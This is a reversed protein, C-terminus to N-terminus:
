ADGPVTPGQQVEETPKQENGVETSKESADVPKEEMMGAEKENGSGSAEGESKGVNNNKEAGSGEEKDVAEEWNDVVTEKEQEAEKKRLELRRLAVFAGGARGSGLVGLTTKSGTAPTKPAAVIVRKAGRSAVANWGGTNAGSDVGERRLINLSDDAHCLIVNRAIGGSRSSITKLISSKLATLSSEITQPASTIISAATFNPVAKILIEETSLFSTQFTLALGSRSATALDKYLEKEVEETTLGFRPQTLLLANFAQVAPQPKESVVVVRKNAQVLRYCQALTKQPAAVFRPTKFICVHRHGEPDQSESDLGYDEALSHLFARQNPPMPKFRLRKEDSSSAFVRFEREQTQAWTINERFMKLTKDSYPIHDDKHSDPNVKLAAALQQNRQIRLCEDDCKLVTDKHPWPNFRTAQCRVEQKRRILPTASIPVPTSALYWPGAVFRLAISGLYPSMRASGLSTARCCPQNKLVKKGCICPREVLFPCKPCMPHGCARPRRCNFRCEPPRTGCPQPPHLITRGCSCSIEDFIAEPCAMCPGKLQRGCVQLCIHEVEYNENATRKQKRREAAKKEGPCCRAGCEHRGCNLQARCTRFCQPQEVTGQHCVSKASVKGCRCSIDVYQFCPSCAGTHCKNCLKDCQPVPDLSTKGCNCHTVVDPSLSCHATSEDQPHCPQNQCRFSGEFWEGEEAEYNFSEIVDDRQNCTVVKKEKGCYCIAPVPIKCAGCLGSHCPQSCTHEGCPLLDGCEEHCRRTIEHKGCFCAQAPGMLTCPPCPGAHCMLPCPHPCTARPKSCTNGCTHPPLGPIPKMDVDKGCWCHYVTPAEILNSNCGPCRWYMLQDPNPDEKRKDMQNRYWKKVCHIHLVTWCISCSWVKSTRVVENTCIVCEYQGNNIDEHIRTPLDEATSKETVRPPPPDAKPPRTRPAQLPAAAVPQGPVFEAAVASLRTLDIIQNILVYKEDLRMKRFWSLKRDEEEAYNDKVVSLFVRELTPAGISYDQLGLEERNKELLEILMGVGNGNRATNVSSADNEERDLSEAQQREKEKETWNSGVMFRIQGGVSRGEFVVGGDGRSFTEKVWTEVKEAETESSHPASRLVLQVCVADSFDKRLSGTTGLALLKGGGLIAVKTALADAEEMSHTTLLLSRGPSVDELIKWMKRKAAADMSSSPEDLVLVSPNGMLAIALSLKRKNGGSLASAQKKAHPTLGVRDMLTEINAAREAKPIGKVAAYFELHQKATMLDLADFQPCVGIASSIDDANAQSSINAGHLLIEGSDPRLEGRILNVITTKGAGNPGLLAVIESKHLSLSVDSVAPISNFAKHLHSIELLPTNSSPTTKVALASKEEVQTPATSPPTSIVSSATKGGRSVRSTIFAFSLDDDVWILIAVMVFIQIVLYVLPFTYGWWSSAPAQSPSGERCGLRYLNLGVAMARFVNGIPFVLDLVYSVIDTNRQVVLADSLFYPLTYALGLGFFSVSNFGLAWLFSSLQSRAWTSVIYSLLIGTVGHFLIVPFMYGPGFWEPFQATITATYAIAVALVFCLDFLFYATWMPAPRVGNSIMLPRVNSSREFAPYLAFFCPYVTMIFAAYLIYQWSSGGFGDLNNYNYIMYTSIRTGGSRIASWLGLFEMPAQYGSDATYAIVPPHENDGMWVGDIGWTEPPQNVIKDVFDDYKDTLNWDRSFYKIDYGYETSYGYENLTDHSIPHTLASDNLISYLSQNFSPPGFINRLPYYEYNVEASTCEPRTFDTPIFETIAPICAIPLALTLFAGIWYRPLIRLRKILLARLQQFFTTRQGSSLQVALEDKNANSDGKEAEEAAVDDQAVRLFVDEVTPGAVQVDTHGAAELKAILQAAATSDPATYHIRDQHVTGVSDEVDAPADKPLSVRYGGGLRVKLETSTGQCRIEGKSLIVIHDALVEGEDLFHTTFIMSRKTREALIINWITRRSIPDLGSTVEDMMCVTTGGVFMCALQLKRKQGGSLTKARSHTKRTLDCAAILDHLAQEDENGGKLESWFKVHEYVTLRNFLINKQPCIGIRSHRANIVIDGATPAQAGSLIDLTTSKGAGNVGLLCLIQNKQAILDLGNLAKFPKRRGRWSWSNYVKTLGTARIAVSTDTSSDTSLARGKFNIGHLFKEALISLIPYIVIQIVLFVWFTWVAVRYPGGPINGWFEEPVLKMDIGLTTMDVPWKLLAFKAMHSLVFMYNMQPFLLSLFLVRATDVQRNVLIAAGGGLCSFAVVVFISSIVRQKFFAAAFISANLYALGSFIQWFIFIAANSKSFLLQWYLCGHVIWTPLQIASLALMASVVRSGPGGGMADVLQSTGSAREATIFGVAHYVAPLTSLFYVIIWTTIVQRAYLADEFAEVEEQNNTSYMWEYAVENSNTIANDVAMQLPLHYLQHDNSGSNVDAGNGEYRLPDFSLTYNWTQNRTGVTTLPSDRFTVIGYCNSVGRFNPICHSRAEVENEFRLVKGPQSTLPESIRDLVPDVDPGLFDPRVLILQQGSPIANALTRIPRAEGNGYRQPTPNFNRINLTLALLAIPVITVQLITALWHRTVLLLLNKKTLAKVQRVFEGPSIFAM